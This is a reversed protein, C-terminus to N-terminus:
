FAQNTPLALRNKDLGTWLSIEVAFGGALTHLVIGNAANIWIMPSVAVGGSQYPKKKKIFFDYGVSVTYSASVTGTIKEM